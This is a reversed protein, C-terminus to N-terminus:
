SLQEWSLGFMIKMIEAIAPNKILTGFVPQETSILAVKDDWILVDVPISDINKPLVRTEYMSKLVSIPIRASTDISDKTLIDKLFIGRERMQPIFKKFFDWGFADYLKKTSSVGLVSKAELMEYFIEKVQEKGEFFKIQPKNKQSAFLARLDPLVQKMAETRSELTHVLVSPDAALYIKRHGHKQETVLNKEKLSQLLGYLNPRAIKIGRAIQPPSSLGQELLYLYVKIENESLGLQKLYSSINEM